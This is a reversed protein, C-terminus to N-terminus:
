VDVLRVVGDWDVTWATEFLCRGQPCNAHFVLRGGAGGEVGGEIATGGGPATLNFGGLVMGTAILPKGDKARTYPGTVNEATAYNVRYLDTLFCHSSYFLVYVALSPAEVLPGDEEEKRDLIEVGKVGGEGTSTTLPTVGDDGDVEVLVIPTGRIPEVGNNCEGGHGRSNGDVKYVVYRRGTDEDLFGAADIAGGKELPCALPNEEAVYPGLITRATAAGICHFASNNGPMQGSYYMVFYDERLMRVDPAWTNGPPHGHTQASLTWNGSFPLIEQPLHTWPGSPSPAYAAQINLGNSATAFAFYTGNPHRLISPDPFDLPMLPQPNTNATTSPTPTPSTTSVVRAPTSVAKNHQQEEQQQQRVINTLSSVGRGGPLTPQLPPAPTPTQYPYPSPGLNSCQWQALLM